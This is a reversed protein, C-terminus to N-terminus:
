TSPEEKLWANFLTYGVALLTAGVFIGIFGWALMGGLVGLFIIVMPTAGGMGILYPKIFNDVINVFLGWVIMFIMWGHQGTWGLWIAAPIWVPGTGIQLTALLFSLFGLLTVGPVGALVLGLCTLVAQVLATGMVGVSVGRITQEAVSLLPAARPGSVREGFRQILAVAAEGHHLMVGSILVALLFELLAMGLDAGKSLVWNAAKAIWPKAKALTAGLDTGADQWQAVLRDGVLPFEKLWAPPAPFSLATLDHALRAVAQVHEALSETLYVVPVVFVLLLLFAVLSAALSSRGGLVARLRLYLPWVSVTIITAWTLAGLFPLVIRLCAALLAGLFILAIMRPYFPNEM